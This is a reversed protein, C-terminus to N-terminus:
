SIANATSAKLLAGLLFRVQTVLIKLGWEVVSSGICLCPANKENILTPLREVGRGNLIESIATQAKVLHTKIM